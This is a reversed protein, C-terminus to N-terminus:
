PLVHIGSDLRRLHIAISRMICSMPTSSPTSVLNSLLKLSSPLLPCKVHKFTVM